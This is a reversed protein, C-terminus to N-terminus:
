RSVGIGELALHLTIWDRSDLHGSVFGGEGSLGLDNMKGGGFPTVQVAILQLLTTFDKLLIVITQDGLSDLKPTVCWRCVCHQLGQRRLQGAADVSSKSLLSSLANSISSVAQLTSFSRSM